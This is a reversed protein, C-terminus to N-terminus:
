NWNKYEVSWNDKVLSGESAPDLLVAKAKQDDRMQWQLYNIAAKGFKGGNTAAYTGGHGTDLNAKYAPLGANLLKYDKESGPHGMDKPGGIFWAVPVKIEQLLYRRNDQFIAINFLMVRHIRPDHYATSMASLGGCSHGATIIKDRDIKAYKDAGGSLAWDVSARMDSVLSQRQQAVPGDASVVYGHSAIMLLMSRYTAGGDMACGGNGWAIFPVSVNAPPPTSPVYLTHGPLSPDTVVRAPYPGNAPGPAGARPVETGVGGPLNLNAVATGLENLPICFIGGAITDDGTAPFYGPRPTFPAQRSEVKASRSAAASGALVAAAALIRIISAM